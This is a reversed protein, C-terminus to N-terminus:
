ATAAFFTMEVFSRFRDELQTIKDTILPVNAPFILVYTRSCFLTVRFIADTKGSWYGSCQPNFAHRVPLYFQIEVLHHFSVRVNEFRSLFLHM